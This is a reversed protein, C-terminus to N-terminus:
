VELLVYSFSEGVGKGMKDINKKSSFVNMWKRHSAHLMHYCIQYPIMKCGEILFADLSEIKGRLLVRESELYENAGWWTHVNCCLWKLYAKWQAQFVEESKNSRPLFDAIQM